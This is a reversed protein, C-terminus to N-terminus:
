RSELLQILAAEVNEIDTWKEAFRIIGDQGIIYTSNPAHGYTCWVPNILGEMDLDDLVQIQGPGLLERTMEARDKREDYTRAQRVTSLGEVEWVAGSYPSPDPRMPHAELVYVHLFHVRDSFTTTEDYAKVALANLGPV